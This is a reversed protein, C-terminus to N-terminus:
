PKSTCCLDSWHREDQQLPGPWTVEALENTSVSTATNLPRSAAFLQVNTAGPPVSGVLTIGNQLTPAVWGLVQAHTLPTTTPSPSEVVKGTSCGALFLLSLTGLTLLRMARNGLGSELGAIVVILTDSGIDRREWGEDRRM